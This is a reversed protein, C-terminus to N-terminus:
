LNVSSCFIRFSSYRNLHNSNFTTYVSSINSSPEALPLDMLIVVEHTSHNYTLQILWYYDTSSVAYSTQKGDLYITTGSVDNILTKAISVNSYGMTGSPGSVTFSLTKSTSNFVLQSLTSNSVVSFPSSWVNLTQTGIADNLKTLNFSHDSVGSVSFAKTGVATTLYNYEWRSNTASWSMATGNIYLVGNSDKAKV